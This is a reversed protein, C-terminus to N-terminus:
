VRAARAEEITPQATTGGAARTSLAGCACALALAQDLPEGSLLGALLGADFTDGAGVTDVPEVDSAPGAWLVEGDPRAAVAGEAGLKVVVLPGAASLAEAAQRSDRAGAICQAEAANPLLIDVEGLMAPLGSDWAESPDWNPDVSTTAGARRVAAFLAGLGPTLAIQLYYSSVHVHRARRLLVPDVAGAALAAISGPFTLIGRDGERALIVTLGTRVRPDVILGSTDVAREALRDVMYRGFLDDGVVGVIATRLGLRAAACAMIAGSGGITLEATDVLTEVQGFAPALGPASLILDPNCDGLVLLDFEADTV